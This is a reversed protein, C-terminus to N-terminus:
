NRLTQYTNFYLSAIKHPNFHEMHQLGNKVMRERFSEDAILLQIMTRIAEVDMPDDILPNEPAAVEPISCVKSSVIPRGIAQAELVPMGFGEHTSVFTVIDAQEYLQRVEDYGINTHESWEVECANLLKLQTDSLKGLVVFRCPIGKLAKVVSEVNKHKATGIQLIHPKGRAFKRAVPNFFSPVANPIVTIKNPNIGLYQILDRKTYESVTTIGKSCLAPITMWLLKYAYKKLGQLNKYHGVDHITLVVKRPWLMPIIYNIDGTVHYIDGKLRKIAKINGLLGIDPQYHYIIPVIPKPLYPIINFFVEEISHANNSKSRFIFVVRM